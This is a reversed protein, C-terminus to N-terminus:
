GKREQRQKTGSHCSACLCQLNAESWFLAENGRHPQKHDAVLKSTDGELRGCMQCIFMAQKLIHWRLRRWRKTQYWKRWAINSRDKDYEARGEPKQIRYPKLTAIRPTATKLRGM